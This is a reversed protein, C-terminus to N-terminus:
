VMAASRMSGLEIRQFASKDQNTLQTLSVRNEAVNAPVANHVVAQHGEEVHGGHGLKARSREEVKEKVLGLLLLRTYWSACLVHVLTSSM